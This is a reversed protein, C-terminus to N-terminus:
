QMKIGNMTTQIISGYFSIKTSRKMVFSNGCKVSITRLIKLERLKLRIQWPGQSGNAMNKRKDRLMRETRRQHLGTVQPLVLSMVFTGMVSISEVLWYLSLPINFICRVTAINSLVILVFITTMMIRIWESFATEWTQVVLQCKVYRRTFTFDKTTPQSAQIWDLYCSLMELWYLMLAIFSSFLRGAEAIFLTSLLFRISFSIMSIFPRDDGNCIYRRLLHQLINHYPDMRQASFIIPLVGAILVLESIFMKSVKSAIKCKGIEKWSLLHKKRLVEKMRAFGCAIDDCFWFMAWSYTCEFIAVPLLWMAFIVAPISLTAANYITFAYSFTTILGVVITQNALWIRYKPYIRGRTFISQTKLNWELALPPFFRFYQYHSILTECSTLYSFNRRAM